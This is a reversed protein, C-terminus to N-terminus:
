SEKLITIALELQEKQFGQHYKTLVLRKKYALELGNLSKDDDIILFDQGQLSPIFAQVEEKRSYDKPYLPLYGAIPQIIGRHEFIVQFEELTKGKRRSSSLWIEFPAQNLLENLCAVAQTNFTAYGDSSLPNAQWAPTTILVGDLDLLLITPSTKM